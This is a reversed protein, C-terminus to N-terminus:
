EPNEIMPNHAPIAYGIATFRDENNLRNRCTEVTRDDGVIVDVTKGLWDDPPERVLEFTTPDSEDWDRVTIDLGLYRVRGRHYYKGTQASLGTITISKGDVSTITGSDTFDAEVLDCGRGFVQWICHHGAVIGLASELDKKVSTLEIKVQEPKGQYNRFARSVTGRYLVTVTLDDRTEFLAEYITVEVKSHPKGGSLDAFLQAGDLKAVIDCIEDKLSGGFEPLTIEIEPVSSYVNRDYTLEATFPTVRTYLPSSEDGYQFEVLVAAQKWPLTLQANTV